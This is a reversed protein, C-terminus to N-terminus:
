VPRIPLRMVGCANSWPWRRAFAISSCCRLCTWFRPRPRRNQGFRTFSCSARAVFLRNWGSLQDLPFFFRDWSLLSPEQSRTVTQLHRRNILAMLARPPAPLAPIWHPVTWPKRLPPGFPTAQVAPPLDDRRLHDAALVYGRGTDSGSALADLWAVAHEHDEAQRLAALLGSLNQAKTTTQRLYGTEVPALNLAARLIVGTLGMGGVTRQFLATDPLLRQTAGDPGLLDIWALHHRLSGARHHNKGHVDAAIMGGLTVERTGPVVPPFAGKPLAFSIIESLVAGAEATLEPRVTSM